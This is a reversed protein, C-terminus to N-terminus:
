KIDNDDRDIALDAVPLFTRIKVMTFLPVLVLVFAAAVVLVVVFSLTDDHLCDFDFGSTLDNM